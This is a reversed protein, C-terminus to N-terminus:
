SCLEAFERTQHLYEKEVKIEEPPNAKGGLELDEQIFERFSMTQPVVGFKLLDRYRTEIGKLIKYDNEDMHLGKFRLRVTAKILRKHKSRSYGDM